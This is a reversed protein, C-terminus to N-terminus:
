SSIRFLLISRINLLLDIIRNFVSGDGVCVKLIYVVVEHARYSKRKHYSQM